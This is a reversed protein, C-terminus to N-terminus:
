EDKLVKTYNYQCLDIIDFRSDVGMKNFVNYLHLKVTSEALNLREAIERNSAKYITLIKIVREEAPTIGLGKLDYPAKTENIEELKDKIANYDTKLTFNEKKLEEQRRLTDGWVILLMIVLFLTFWLSSFGAMVGDDTYLFASIQSTTIIILMLIASKLNRHEEMFGYQRAVLWGVLFLAPGYFEKYGTILNAIGMLFFATVQLLKFWRNEHFVSFFFPIGLLFVFWVYPNKLASITGFKSNYNIFNVIVVFIDIVSILLGVRKQVTELYKGM